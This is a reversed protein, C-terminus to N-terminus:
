SRESYALNHYPFHNWICMQTLAYIHFIITLSDLWMQVIMGWSILKRFISYTTILSYQRYFKAFQNVFNSVGIANNFKSAVAYVRQKLFIKDWVYRLKSFYVMSSIRLSQWRILWIGTIRTLLNLAKWEEIVQMQLPLIYRVVNCM